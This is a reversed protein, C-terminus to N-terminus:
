VPEKRPLPTTTEPDEAAPRRASAALHDDLLDALWHLAATTRERDGTMLHDLQLGWTAGSVLTAVAECTEDDGGNAQVIQRELELGDLLIDRVVPPYGEPDRQSLSAAEFFLRMVDDHGPQMCWSWYRWMIGGVSSPVDGQSGLWSRVQEVERRSVHKLALDILQAKTGFNYVFKFTSTDLAQALSRFTLEGLGHEVLHDAVADLLAEDATNGRGSM